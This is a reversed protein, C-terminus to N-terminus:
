FFYILGKNEKFTFSLFKNHYPCFSIKDSIGDKTFWTWRSDSVNFFMDELDNKTYEFVTLMYKYSRPIRQDSMTCKINSDWNPDALEKLNVPLNSAIITYRYSAGYDLTKTNTNKTQPTLSSLTKQRKSSTEVLENDLIIYRNTDKSTNSETDKPNECVIPVNIPTSLQTTLNASVNSDMKQLLLQTM